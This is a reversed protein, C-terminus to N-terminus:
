CIRPLDEGMPTEIIREGGPVTELLVMGPHQETIRGIIAADKGLPHSRLSEFTKNTESQGCIVLAKGENAVNLIDLGLLECIGRTERKTPISSEKIRIGAGSAEAIDCLATALGGRTPDRLCHIDPVNQLLSSIMPWLGATDSTLCNELQLRESMVAAGHDGITGSIIVTDGPQANSIHVDTDPHRIGIGATNIFINNGKGHEVVKTDGAVIKVGTQDVASAVSEIIREFDTLPFGEELILGLSLYRPEAGQMALDNITGCVALKGIDGGPFFIPDIVYSDTTFALESEPISLCASDDLKELISNGLRALIIKSILQKTRIGGGGHSLLIVEGHETKPKM